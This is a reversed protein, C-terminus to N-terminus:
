SSRVRQDERVYNKTWCVHYELGLPLDHVKLDFELVGVTVGCFLKYALVPIRCEKAKMSKHISM